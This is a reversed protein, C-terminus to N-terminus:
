ICLLNYVRQQGAKIIDDNEYFRVSFVSRFQSGKEGDGRSRLRARELNSIRNAVAPNEDHRHTSSSQELDDDKAVTPIYTSKQNLTRNSARNGKRM